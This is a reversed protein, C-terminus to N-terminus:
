GRIAWGFQLPNPDRILGPRWKGVRGPVSSPNKNESWRLYVPYVFGVSDTLRPMVDMLKVLNTVISDRFPNEVGQETEKYASLREAMHSVAEYM